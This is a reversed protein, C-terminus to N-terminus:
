AGLFEVIEDVDVIHEDDLAPGRPPSMKTEKKTRAKRATKLPPKTSKSKCRKTCNDHAYGTACHDGTEQM